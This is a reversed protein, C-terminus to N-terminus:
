CSGVKGLPELDQNPQPVSKPGCLLDSEPGKEQLAGYRRKRSAFSHLAATFDARCFDPWLVDTFYLETYALQWLLFNSIRLEGSTRILLDPDPFNRYLHQRITSENIEMAELEGSAVKQAIHQTARLLEERSGYDIALTLTMMQHHATDAKLKVLAERTTAPLRELEGITELRVQNDILTQREGECYEELLQMLGAVERPPRRWNQSSFSYLTLHQIELERAFTTIDRVVDAGRRHGALRDLNRASAWRGNGDMIIAVHQPLAGRPVISSKKSM